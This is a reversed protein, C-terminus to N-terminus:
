KACLERLQGKAHAMDMFPSVQLVLGRASAAIQLRVLTFISEFVRCVHNNTARGFVEHTRLDGFDDQLQLVYWGYFVEQTSDEYDILTFNIFPYRPARTTFAYVIHADAFKNPYPPVQLSELCSRVVSDVIDESANEPLRVINELSVQSASDEFHAYLDAFYGFFHSTLAEQNSQIATSRVRRIQSSRRRMTEMLTDYAETEGLQQLSPLDLRAVARHTNEIHKVLRLFALGSVTLAAALSVQGAIRDLLADRMILAALVYFVSLFQIGRWSVALLPPLFPWKTTIARYRQSIAKSSM